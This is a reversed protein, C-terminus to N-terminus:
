TCTNTIRPTKEKKLKRQINVFCVFCLCLFSLKFIMGVNICNSERKKKGEEKTEKKRPDEKNKGKKKGQLNLFALM